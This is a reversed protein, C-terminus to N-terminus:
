NKNFCKNNLVFATIYFRDNNYNQFAAHEYNENGLHCILMNSSPKITIDKKLYTLEGGDYNDNIYYACGYFIVPEDLDQFNYDTRYGQDDYHPGITWKKSADEKGNNKRYCRVDRVPVLSHINNNFLGEMKTIFENWANLYKDPADFDVHKKGRQSIYLDDFTFDNINCFETLAAHSEESLFNEIYFIGDEIYTKTM